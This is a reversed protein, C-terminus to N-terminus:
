GRASEELILTTYMIFSYKVFLLHSELKKWLIKMLIVLISKVERSCSDLHSFIQLFFSMDACIRRAM